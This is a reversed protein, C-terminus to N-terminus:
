PKTYLLGDLARRADERLDLPGEVTFEFYANGHYLSPSDMELIECDKITLTEALYHEGIDRLSERIYDPIQPEVSELISELIAPLEKIKPKNNFDQEKIFRSLPLSFEGKCSFKQM